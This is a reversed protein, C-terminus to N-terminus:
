LNMLISLFIRKENDVSPLTGKILSQVFKVSSSDIDIHNDDILHDLMMVSADEHEWKINHNRYLLHYVLIYKLIIPM